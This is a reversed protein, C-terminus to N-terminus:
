TLPAWVGDSGRCAIAVMNDSTGDFSIAHAYRRCTTAGVSYPQQPTVSGYVSTSARWGVPVGAVGTELARYEANAALGRAKEDLAAGIEEAALATRLPESLRALSVGGTATACGSLGLWALVFLIRDIRPM